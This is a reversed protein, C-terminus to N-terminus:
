LFLIMGLLIIIVQFLNIIMPVEWEYAKKSPKIKKLLVVAIHELGYIKNYKLSLSGDPNLKSFSQKKLKGRSKLITELIYPIFFFLAIKEINGLIAICAILAGVSYTLIDGPFAKAPYKNFFYFGLLAAVMTASILSLWWNGVFFNVVTLGLLVLIGQSTELGNYGALFNFTATAGVIGLPILLLPYLIGFNIGMVNAEGVNIVMLPIAVFFLLLIRIRKPLGGKKWGLVDDLFGISAAFLVVTMLGFIKILNSEDKFIFVKIAIYIMLAILFGALVAIGGSGAVNKPTGSKHVDEWLFDISKAKKIWIVSLIVTVFFAIIIVPSFLLGLFTINDM